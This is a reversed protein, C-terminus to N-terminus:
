VEVLVRRKLRSKTTDQISKLADDAHDSPTAGTPGKKVSLLLLMMMMVMLM